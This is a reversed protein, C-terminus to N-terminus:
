TGSQGMRVGGVDDRGLLTWERGPGTPWRRGRWSEFWPGADTLDLRCRGDAGPLVDVIDAGLVVFGCVTAVYPLPGHQRISIGLIAGGWSGLRLEDVAGTGLVQFGRVDVVRRDLFLGFPCERTVAGREVPPRSVLEDVRASDYFVAASTRIPDGALGAELALNARRRSLGVDSLRVAAQRSSILM